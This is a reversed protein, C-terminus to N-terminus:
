VRFGLGKVGAGKLCGQRAVGGNHGGGVVIQLAEGGGGGPVTPLPPPVGQPPRQTYPEELVAEPVGVRQDAALHEHVRPPEVGVVQLYIGISASHNTPRHPINRKPPQSQDAL